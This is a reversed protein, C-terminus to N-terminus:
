GAVALPENAVNAKQVAEHASPRLGGDIFNHAVELSWGAATLDRHLDSGDEGFLVTLLRATKDDADAPHFWLWDNIRKHLTGMTDIIAVLECIGPDAAARENLKSQRDIIKARQANTM